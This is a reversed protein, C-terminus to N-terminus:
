PLVDATNSRRSRCFVVLLQGFQYVTVASNIQAQNVFQSVQLQVPATRFQQELNERLSFLARGDGDDGILWERGPCLCEGVRPQTSDNIPQCEGPLDDLSTAGEVPEGVGAIGARCASGM